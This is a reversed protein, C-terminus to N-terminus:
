ESTGSEPHHHTDSCDAQTASAATGETAAAAAATLSLLTSSSTSTSSSSSISSPLSINHNHHFWFVMTYGLIGVRNIVETGPLRQFGLREYLHKAPNTDRVSLGVGPYTSSGDGCPHDRTTQILTQLLATGIGQGQYAPEVGIAIEPITERVYGFGRVHPHTWVQWWAAGVFQNTSKTRAVVALTPPIMPPTLVPHGESGGVPTSEKNECNALVSSCHANTVYRALLPNTKVTELQEEHAALQLMRWLVQEKGERETDANDNHDAATHTPTHTTHPLWWQEIEMEEHSRSTTFGINPPNNNMPMTTTTVMAFTTTTTTRTTTATLMCIISALLRTSSGTTTLLLLWM